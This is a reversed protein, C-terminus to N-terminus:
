RFQRKARRVTIRLPSVDGHKEEPQILRGEARATGRERGRDDSSLLQPGRRHVHLAMGSEAARRDLLISANRQPEAFAAIARCFPRQVRVKLSLTASLSFAAPHRM